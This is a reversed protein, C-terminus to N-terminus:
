DYYNLNQTFYWVFSWKDNTAPLSMVITSTVERTMSLTEFVFGHSESLGKKQGKLEKKWDEGHDEHHDDSVDRGDEDPDEGRQNDESRETLDCSM